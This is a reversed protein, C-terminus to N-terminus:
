ICPILFGFEDIGEEYFKLSSYRYDIPNEVLKWHKQVPNRHIYDLKQQIVNPSYLEIPLSQREWFHYTRSNESSEFFPLVKPHNERLDNLFEHGTFKM